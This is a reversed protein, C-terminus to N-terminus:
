SSACADKVGTQDLFKSWNLVPMNGVVGGPAKSTELTSCKSHDATNVQKGHHRIRRERLVERQVKDAETENLNQVAQFWAHQLAVSSEALERLFTAIELLLPQIYGEWHDRDFKLDHTRVNLPSDYDQSQHTEMLRWRDQQCLWMYAQCQEIDSQPVRPCDQSTWLRMRRKLEVYWMPSVSGAVTGGATGRASAPKDQHDPAERHDQHDPQDQMWGQIGDIRGSLLLGPGLRRRFVRMNGGEVGLQRAVLTETAMGEEVHFRSEIARLVQDWFGQTDDCLAPTGGYMKVQQQQQEVGVISVKREETADNLRTEGPRMDGVIRAENRRKVACQIPPSHSALDKLYQELVEKWNGRERAGLIANELSRSLGADHVCTKSIQEATKFTASVPLSPWHRKFLEAMAHLRHRHPHRGILAAVDNAHITMDLALPLRLSRPEHLRQISRELSARQSHELSLQTMVPDANFAHLAESSFFIHMPDWFSREM